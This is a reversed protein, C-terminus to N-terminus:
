RKTTLGKVAEELDKLVAPMLEKLMGDYRIDNPSAGWWLSVLASWDTRYTKEWLVHQSLPEVLELTFSLYRHNTRAPLGLAWLYHALFAFGYQYVTEDLRTSELKGRILLEGSGDRDSYTVTKFLRRNEVEQAVAKAIEEHPKFRLDTNEVMDPRDTVSSRWLVLPIMILWGNGSNESPRGELMPPVAVTNALLPPRSVAPGPQYKWNMSSACGSLLLSLSLSLNLIFLASVRLPSM